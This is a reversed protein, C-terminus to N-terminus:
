ALRLAHRTTTALHIIYLMSGYAVIKQATAQIMYGRETGLRPGLVVLAVYGLIVVLYGLSAALRARAVQNRWMLITLCAVYGLLLSFAAVVLANHLDLALNWPTLAIGIFAAGSATGLVRSARGAGAARGLRFAFGRWTWSFGILGAGLSALAVLFLASSLYNSRGSFAHTAGLDSLFNHALQYSSTSPDYATGGAYVAMACATLVIFQIAGYLLFGARRHATTATM